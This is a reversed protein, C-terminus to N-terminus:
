RMADINLKGAQSLIYDKSYNLNSCELSYGENKRYFIFQSYTKNHKDKPWTDSQVQDADYTFGKNVLLELIQRTTESDVDLKIAISKLAPRSLIYEAGLLIEASNKANILVHTAKKITDNTCLSDLSIAIGGQILETDDKGSLQQLSNSSRLFIARNNKEIRAAISIMKGSLNNLTINKNIAFCKDPLQEVAVTACGASATAAYLCAEGHGAGISILLDKSSIHNLWTQLPLDKEFELLNQLSNNYRYLKLERNNFNELRLTHILNEHESSDKM